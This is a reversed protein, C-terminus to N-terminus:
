GANSVLRSYEDVILEKGTLQKLVKLPDVDWKEMSIRGTLKNHGSSKDLPNAESQGSGMYPLPPKGGSSRAPARPVSDPNILSSPALTRPIYPM